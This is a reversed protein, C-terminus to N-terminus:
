DSNQVHRNVMRVTHTGYDALAGKPRWHSVLVTRNISRAERQFIVDAERSLKHRWAMDGVGRAEFLAELYDDKDLIPIALLKAIYRGVTTKGAGPLGTVYICSENSM